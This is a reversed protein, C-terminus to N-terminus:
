IWDDGGPDKPPKSVISGIVSTALRAKAWQETANSSSGNGNVIGQASTRAIDFLTSSVGSTAKSPNLTSNVVNNLANQKVSGMVQQTAGKLNGGVAQQIFGPQTVANSFLASANGFSFSGFSGLASSPASTRLSSGIRSVPNNLRPSSSIVKASTNVAGTAPNGAVNGFLQKAGPQNTNTPEHVDGDFLRNEAMTRIFEPATSSKMPMPRNDNQYIIAEYDITMTLGHGVDSGYDMDDPNFSVIKPNVLDFQTYSGGAFQYCEMSTFFGTPTYNISDVKENPLTLGFGENGANRYDREVIDYKWDSATNKRFDGFYFSTYEHWMQMVAQDATDHFEIRVPNYKVGTQVIRKKNYQNLVQTEFTVAPRDFRKCAFSLGEMWVEKKGQGAGRVFRVLFLYKQRPAGLTKEGGDYRDGDFGFVRYAQAPSRQYIMNGTSTTKDKAM